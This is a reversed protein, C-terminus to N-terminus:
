RRTHRRKKKQQRRRTKRHRKRRGGVAAPANLISRLQLKLAPTISETIWLDNVNIALIPNYNSGADGPLIELLGGNPLDWSDEEVLNASGLVYTISFKNGGLTTFTLKNDSHSISNIVTYPIKSAGKDIAEHFTGNKIGMLIDQLKGKVDEVIVVKYELSIGDKEKKINMIHKGDIVSFQITLNGPIRWTTDDANYQLEGEPFPLPIQIHHNSTRLLQIYSEDPNGVIFNARIRNITSNSAM